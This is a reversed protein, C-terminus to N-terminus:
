HSILDVRVKLLHKYINVISDAHVSSPYLKIANDYALDTIYDYDRKNKIIDLINCSLSNISSVEFLIGTKNHKIISGHAGSNSALVLTKQLISEVL